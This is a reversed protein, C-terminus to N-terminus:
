VVPAFASGPAGEKANNLKRFADLFLGGASYFDMADIHAQHYMTGNWSIAHAHVDDGIEKLNKCGELDLLGTITLGKPLRELWTAGELKINGNWKFGDPLTRIDHYTDNKFLLGTSAAVDDSSEWGRGTVIYQINNIHEAAPPANKMGKCDCLVNNRVDFTVLSENSSDRLSYINVDGSELEEQAVDYGVYHRLKKTEAKIAATTTLKVLSGFDYIEITKTHGSAAKDFQSKSM